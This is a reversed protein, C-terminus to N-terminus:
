KLDYVRVIHAKTFRPDVDSQAIGKRENAECVPLNRVLPDCIHPHGPTSVLCGTIDELCTGAQAAGACLACLGILGLALKFSGRM